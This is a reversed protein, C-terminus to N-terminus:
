FLLATGFFFLLNQTFLCGSMTAVTGYLFYGHHYLSIEMRFRTEPVQGVNEYKNMVQRM